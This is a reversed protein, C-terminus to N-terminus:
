EDDDGTLTIFQPWAGLEYNKEARMDRLSDSYKNQMIRAVKDLLRKNHIIYQKEEDRQEKGRAGKLLQTSVKYTL